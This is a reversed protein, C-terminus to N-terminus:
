IVKKGDIDRSIAHLDSKKMLMALLRSASMKVGHTKLLMALSHKMKQGRKEQQSPTLTQYLCSQIFSKCKRM